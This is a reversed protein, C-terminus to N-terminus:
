FNSELTSVGTPFKNFHRVAEAYRFRRLLVGTRFPIFYPGRLTLLVPLGRYGRGIDGARRVYNHVYCSGGVAASSTGLVRHIERHRFLARPHGRIATRPPQSVLIVIFGVSVVMGIAVKVYILGVRVIYSEVVAAAAIGRAAVEALRFTIINKTM